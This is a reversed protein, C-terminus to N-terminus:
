QGEVAAGQRHGRAKGQGGGAADGQSASAARDIDCGAVREGIVAEDGIRRSLATRQIENVAALKIEPEAFM